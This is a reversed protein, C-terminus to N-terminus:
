EEFVREFAYAPGCYETTNLLRGVTPAVRGVRAVTYGQRRLLGEAFDQADAQSPSLSVLIRDKPPRDRDPHYAVVLHWDPRM